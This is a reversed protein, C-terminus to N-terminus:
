VNFKFLIVDGDQVVYEKGESRLLGKEKAANLSGLSILDDYRGYEAILSINKRLVRPRNLALWKTIVRFVRREGLGGRVDRGFFLIKMAIDPNEAYARKFRNIIENEDAWRIAGITSFLDLCHSLTSACTVAGNETYTINSKEKLCDLMTKENNNNM